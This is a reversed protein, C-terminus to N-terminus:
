VPEQIKDGRSNTAGRLVRSLKRKRCVQSRCRDSSDGLRCLTDLHDLARSLFLTQIWEQPIMSKYKPTRRVWEWFVFIGRREAHWTDHAPKALHCGAHRKASQALGRPPEEETAGWRCAISEYAFPVCFSQGRPQCPLNRQGTKREAQSTACLWFSTM